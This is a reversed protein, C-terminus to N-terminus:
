GASGGLEEEDPMPLFFRGARFSWITFCVRIDAALAVCCAHGQTNQPPCLHACFSGHFPAPGHPVTLTDWFDGEGSFAGIGLASGRMKKREAADALEEQEAAYM